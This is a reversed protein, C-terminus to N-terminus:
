FYFNFNKFIQVQTKTSIYSCGNIYSSIIDQVSLNYKKNLLKYEVISIYKDAMPSWKETYFIHDSETVYEEIANERYDLLLMVQHSLRTNNYLFILNCNCLGALHSTGTNRVIVFKSHYLINILDLINNTKDILNIVNSSMLLLKLNESVLETTFGVLVFTNTRDQRIVEYLRNQYYLNNNIGSNETISGISVVISNKIKFVDSPNYFIGAFHAMIKKRFDTIRLFYETFKYVVQAKDNLKYLYKSPPLAQMGGEVYTYDYISQNELDNSNITHFDLLSIIKLAANNHGYYCLTIKAKPKVLRTFYLLPYVKYLFDGLGQSDAMFLINLILPDYFLIDYANKVDTITIM